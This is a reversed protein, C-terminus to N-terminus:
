PNAILPKIRWNVVTREWDHNEDKYVGTGEDHWCICDPSTSDEAKCENKHYYYQWYQQKM